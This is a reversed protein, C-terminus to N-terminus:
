GKKLVEYAANIEKMRKEALLKFEEDLGAARDPHNALAKKKYAKKIEEDTANTPVGLIEHPTKVKERQPHEVSNTEEQEPEIGGLIIIESKYSCKYRDCIDKAWDDLIEKIVVVESYEERITVDELLHDPRIREFHKKWVYVVGSILIDGAKAGTADNDRDLIHGLYKNGKIAFFGSGDKDDANMEACIGWWTNQPSSNPTLTGLVLYTDTSM